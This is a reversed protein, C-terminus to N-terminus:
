TRGGKNSRSKMIIEVTSEATQDPFPKSRGGFHNHFILHCNACLVVSVGDEIDKINYYAPLGSSRRPYRKTDKCLHHAELADPHDFGCCRCGLSGLLEKYKKQIKRNQEARDLKRMCPNCHLGGCDKKVTYTKNCENCTKEVAM